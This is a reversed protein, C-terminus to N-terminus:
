LQRRTEGHSERKPGETRNPVSHVVEIVLDWLTLASIGDIRVGADLSIIEAETSSHSVSTQSKCIWSIPVFIQSRFICLLGGSASKSHELDSAFDSDQFIWTQMATNGVSCSQEFESTHHIYSILRALRKDSSTTWKTVARALKNVSWM